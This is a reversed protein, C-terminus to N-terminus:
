STTVARLVERAAVPQRADGSQFRTPSGDLSSASDLDSCLGDRLSGDSCPAERTSGTIDWDRLPQSFMPLVIPWAAILM